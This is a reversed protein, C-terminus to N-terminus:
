KWYSIDYSSEVADEIDDPLASFFDYGTREELEDISMAYTGLDGPNAGNRFVFGIARANEMDEVYLIAKFCSSPKRANAKGVFTQDEETYIPGAVIWIAKDRQAWTRCKNELTSWLKENLPGSQPIINTMAMCDRMADASWKNDAAPCLHGRQQSTSSYAYDISTPCGEVSPDPWFDYKNRDVTGYTETNLLEWSVYNATHNDKNFSVIFSTYEKYQEPTGDPLAVYGYKYNAEFASPVPDSSGPNDNNGPNEEDGPNEQDGNEGGPNEQDGPNEENGTNDDGKNDDSDDPKTQEMDPEDDNDSCSTFTVMSTGFLLMLSLFSGLLKLNSFRKM